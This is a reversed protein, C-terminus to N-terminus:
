KRNCVGRHNKEPHLSVITSRTEERRAMTLIYHVSLVIPEGFYNALLYDRLKPAVMSWVTDAEEEQTKVVHEKTFIVSNM